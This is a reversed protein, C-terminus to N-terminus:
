QMGASGACVWVCTVPSVCFPVQDCKGEHYLKFFIVCLVCKGNTCFHLVPILSHAQSSCCSPKAFQNAVYKNISADSTHIVCRYSQLLLKNVDTILLLGVWRNNEFIVSCTKCVRLRRIMYEHSVGYFIQQESPNISSLHVQKSMNKCRGNSFLLKNVWHVTTNHM